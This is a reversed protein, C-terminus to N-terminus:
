KQLEQQLIGFFKQMDKTFREVQKMATICDENLSSGIEEHNLLYKMAQESQEAAQKMASVNKNMKIKALKNM